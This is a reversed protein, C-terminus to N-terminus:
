ILALLHCLVIGFVGIMLVTLFFFLDDIFFSGPGLVEPTGVGGLQEVSM